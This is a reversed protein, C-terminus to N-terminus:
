KVSVVPRCEAPRCGTLSLSVCAHRTSLVCTNKRHKLPKRACESWQVGDLFCCVSCDSMSLLVSRRGVPGSVRVLARSLENKTHRLRVYLVGVAILAVAGVVSGVVIGALASSSVQEETSPSSGGQVTSGSCSDTM